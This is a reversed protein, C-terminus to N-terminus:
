PLANRKGEIRKRDSRAPKLDIASQFAARADSTQGAAALAEGLLEFAQYSDPVVALVARAQEAAGASDGARIM